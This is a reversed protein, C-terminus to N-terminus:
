AHHAQRHPLGLSARVNEAKEILARRIPHVRDEAASKRVDGISVRISGAIGSAYQNFARVPAQAPAEEQGALKRWRAAVELMTRRAEATEIQQALAECTEAHALMDAPHMEPKM